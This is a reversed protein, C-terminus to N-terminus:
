VVPRSAKNIRKLWEKAFRLKHSFKRLVSDSTKTEAGVSGCSDCSATADKSNSHKSSLKHSDTRTTKLSGRPTSPTTASTSLKQSTNSVKVEREYDNGYDFQQFDTGDFNNYSSPNQNQGNEEQIPPAYDINQGFSPSVGTPAPPAASLPWNSAVHTM